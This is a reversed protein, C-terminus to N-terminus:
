PQTSLSNMFELAQDMCDRTNDLILKAQISRLVLENMVSAIRVKDRAAIRQLRKVEAHLDPSSGRAERAIQLWSRQEDESLVKFTSIQPFNTARNIPSIPPPYAWLPLHEDRFPDFWAALYDVNWDTNTRFKIRLPQWEGSLEEPKCIDEPKDPQKKSSPRRHPVNINTDKSHQPARWHMTLTVSEAEGPFANRTTDPWNSMQLSHLCAASDKHLNGAIQLRVLENYEDQFPHRAATSSSSSSASSSGAQFSQKARRLQLRTRVANLEQKRGSEKSRSSSGSRGMNMDDQDPDLLLPGSVRDSSGLHQQQPWLDGDQLHFAKWVAEPPHMVERQLNASDRGVKDLHQNYREIHSVEAPPLLAAIEMLISEVESPSLNDDPSQDKPVPLMDLFATPAMNSLLQELVKLRGVAPSALSDDDGKSHENTQTHAKPLSVVTSGHHSLSDDHAAEIVVVSQTPQQIIQQSPSNSELASGSGSLRAAAPLLQLQSADGETEALHEVTAQKVSPSCGHIGHRLLFRLLSTKSSISLLLQQRHELWARRGAELPMEATAAQEAEALEREQQVQKRAAELIAEDEADGTHSQHQQQQQQLKKKKKKKNKASKKSLQGSPSPEEISLQSAADEESRVDSAPAHDNAAAESAPQADSRPVDPSSITPSGLEDSLCSRMSGESSSAESRPATAHEGLGADVEAHAAEVAPAAEDAAAAKAKNRKRRKKHKSTSRAEGPQSAAEPAAEATSQSRGMFKSTITSFSNLWTRSASAVPEDPAPKSATACQTATKAPKAAESSSTPKSSQSGPRKAQKSSVVASGKAAIPAQLAAQTSASKASVPTEKAATNGCDVQESAATSSPNEREQLELAADDLSSGTVDYQQDGRGDAKSPGNASPSSAAKPQERMPLSPYDALPELHSCDINARDLAAPEYYLEPSWSPDTGDHLLGTYYGAPDEPKAAPALPLKLAAALQDLNAQQLALSLLEPHRSVDGAEKNFLKPLLKRIGQLFEALSECDLSILEQLRLYFAQLCLMVRKSDTADPKSGAAGQLIDLVESSSMVGESMLEALAEGVSSSSCGLNADNAIDQLVHKFPLKLSRGDHGKRQKMFAAALRALLLSHHCTENFIAPAWIRFLAILDGMGPTAQSVAKMKKQVDQSEDPHIHNAVVVHLAALAAPKCEHDPLVM